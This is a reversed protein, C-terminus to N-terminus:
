NGSHRLAKTALWLWHGIMWAQTLLLGAVVPLLPARFVVLILYLALGALAFRVLSGKWLGRWEVEGGLRGVAAAILRFNGLSIGAGAAFAAAWAPRGALLLLGSGAAGLALAGTLTGRIFREREDM